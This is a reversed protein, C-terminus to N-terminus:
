TSMYNPTKTSLTSLKCFEGDDLARKKRKEINEKERGIKGVTVVQMNCM